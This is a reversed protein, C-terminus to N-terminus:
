AFEWLSNWGSKRNEYRYVPSGSNGAKASIDILFINAGEKRQRSSVYGKTLSINMDM